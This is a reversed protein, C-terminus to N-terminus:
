NMLPRDMVLDVIKEIPCPLLFISRDNKIKAFLVIHSSVELNGGTRLLNKISVFSVDFVGRHVESILM